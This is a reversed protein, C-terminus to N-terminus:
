AKKDTKDKQEWYKPAAHKTAKPARRNKLISKKHMDQERAKAHM